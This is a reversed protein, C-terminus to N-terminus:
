IITISPREPWISTWLLLLLAKTIPQKHEFNCYLCWLSMLQCRELTQITLKWCVSRNIQKVILWNRTGLFFNWSCTQKLIHSRKTSVPCLQLWESIMIKWISLYWADFTRWINNDFAIKWNLYSPSISYKRIINAYWLDRKVRYITTYKLGTFIMWNFHCHFIHLSIFIDADKFDIHLTFYFKEPKILVLVEQFGM